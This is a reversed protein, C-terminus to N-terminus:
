FDMKFVKSIDVRIVWPSYSIYEILAFNCGAREFISLM